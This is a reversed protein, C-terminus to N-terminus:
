RKLLYLVNVLNLEYWKKEAIIKKREAIWPSWDIQSGDKHNIKLLDSTGYKDIYSLVDASLMRSEFLDIRSNEKQALAINTRLIFQESPLISVIAYMWIFLFTLFKFINLRTRTIVKILLYIFMIICFIITYSAFFKEYSLGYSTVYLFMRYASSSLLLLSSITFISLIGQVIKHTRQYSFFFIAINIISLALMQWFGSKVLVEVEKFEIPLGTVWIREFQIWLFLLYLLLTGGIVIGLVISDTEKKINKEAPIELPKSWALFVAYLLLALAYFIIIKFIIELSIINEFFIIIGSLKQEFLADVSSLLPIVLGMALILFVVLGLIIRRLTKGKTSKIRLIQHLSKGASALKSLPTLIRGILRVLLTLSWFKEQRKELLLYNLSITLLVPFILINMVKIFANDYIAYSFIILLLPILLVFNKRQWLNEKEVCKALFALILLLWITLNFGLAYIDKEWFNWLFIVWFLSILLAFVLKKM